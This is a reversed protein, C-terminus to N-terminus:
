ASSDPTFDFRTLVVEAEGRDSPPTGRLLWLNIRAHADGPPPVGPAVCSWTAQTEPKEGARNSAFDVAGRRWHFSHVSPRDRLDAEFRHLHSEYPQVVFQCNQNAPDGWRSIEIDIERHHHEPATDWTFLGLVVNPDLHEAGPALEFTYTGYGCGKESVIEAAQWRGGRQVIRLHLRGQDDIWVSDESDSFLNPGPGVPTDSAKVLWRPGSWSLHRRYHEAM